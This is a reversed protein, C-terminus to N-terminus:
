VAATVAESTLRIRVRRYPASGARAQPLPLGVLAWAQPSHSREARAGREAVMEKCHEFVRVAGPRSDFGRPRGEPRQGASAAPAPTAAAGTIDPGPSCPCAEDPAHPTEAGPRGEGRGGPSSPPLLCRATPVLFGEPNPGSLVRLGEERARSDM